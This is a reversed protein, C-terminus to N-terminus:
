ARPGALRSSGRGNSTAWDATPLRQAVPAGASGGSKVFEASTVWGATAPRQAAGVRDTSISPDLGTFAVRDTVPLQQAVLAGHSGSPEGFGVPAETLSLRASM